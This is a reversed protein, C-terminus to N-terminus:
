IGRGGIRSLSDGSSAHHRLYHVVLHCYTVRAEATKIWPNEDLTSVGESTIQGRLWLTPETLCVSLGSSAATLAASV